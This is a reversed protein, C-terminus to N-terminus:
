RALRDPRRTPSTRSTRMRNRLMVAYRHKRRVKGIGDAADIRDHEVFKGFQFRAVEPEDGTAFQDYAKCVLIKRLSAATELDAASGARDQPLKRRRSSPLPQYSGFQMRGS